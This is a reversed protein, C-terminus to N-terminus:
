RSLPFLFFEGLPTFGSQTQSFKNVDLLYQEPAPLTAESRSSDKEPKIQIAKTRTAPPEPAEFSVGDWHTGPTTVPYLPRTFEPLRPKNQSRIDHVQECINDRPFRTQSSSCHVLTGITRGETRLRLASSSGANCRTHDFSATSSKM